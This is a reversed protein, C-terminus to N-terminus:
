TPLGMPASTMWARRESDDFARAASQLGHKDIRYRLTDRATTTAARWASAWPSLIRAHLAHAAHAAHRGLAPSARLPTPHAM